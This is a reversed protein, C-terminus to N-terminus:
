IQKAIPSAFARNYCDALPVDFRCLSIANKSIYIFMCDLFAELSKWFIIFDGEMM